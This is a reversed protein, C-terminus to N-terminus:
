SLLALLKGCTVECHYKGHHLVRKRGNKTNAGCCPSRGVFLSFGVLSFLSFLQGVVTFFFSLASMFVLPFFLPFALYRTPSIYLFPTACLLLAMKQRCHTGRARRLFLFRFFLSYFSDEIYSNIGLSYLLSTTTRIAVAAAAAAVPFYSSGIPRWTRTPKSLLGM